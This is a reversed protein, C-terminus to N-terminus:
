YHHLQYQKLFVTQTVLGLIVQNFTKAVGNSGTVVFNTAGVLTSNNVSFSGTSITLSTTSNWATVSSLLQAGTSGSPRNDTITMTGNVVNNIFQPYQRDYGTGNSGTIVINAVTVINSRGQFGAGAGGAITANVVGTSPIFVNTSGSVIVSGSQSATGNKSFIILNGETGSAGTLSETVAFPYNTAGYASPIMRISGTIFQDGNLTLSGSIAASGTYPFTTDPAYSASIATQAFSASTSNLAYSASTSNLSYSASISNDAFSASTSNLAYSASTATSASDANVAHQAESASIAYSASLVTGELYSATVAYSASTSNVAYSASVVSGAYYSATQALSASVANISDTAFSSSTATNAYSASTATNAYSATTASNATNASAAFTAYSATGVLNGTINGTVGLTGTVQTNVQIKVTGDDIINSDYVHDDGQSRLIRNLTPYTIDALSGTNKPGALFGGGSYSSGSASQYVWHNTESDWVISATTNLSGSDYVQLGAYRAAPLQTNLIIYEQGVIIASGTVTQVYNFSATGNVTLNGGITANNNVQLNSATINLGSAITSAFSATAVLLSSTSVAQPVGNADGVWTYGSQINPLSNPPVTLVIGMGNSGERTVVGLPQVQASGTPQTATWGGGVGVWVLTGAPYGTTNVGEIHGLIIGRGTANPALTNDGAILTAPMRAPNGADAVYVNVNDGTSGSAFLPTGKVISSTDLNRINQYLTRVNAFSLNGAGDTSLFQEVTGDTTPYRLGSATLSTRVNFADASSATAANTAFSASVAYSASTANNAFSATGLLSGTISPANLSGTVSLGRTFGPISPTSAYSDVKLFSNSTFTGGSAADYFTIGVNPVLQINLRHFNTGLNDATTSLSFQADPSAGSAVVEFASSGSAFASFLTNPNNFNGVSFNSGSAFINGTTTISGTVGLSGTILASGTYPFTTDPAYSASIATNAFSASTSNLAYSASTAFSASAIVGQLFSATAAFSASLVSMSGTQSNTIYSSTAAQLSNVQTQISQTFTNTSATYANFSSTTVFSGTNITPANLAFSATLAYSASTSTNSYSASISTQAFSASDSNIAISATDAYSASGANTAYNATNANNANVANQAQTAYSASTATAAQAANIAFSATNALGATAAYSASVSSSVPEGIFVVSNAVNANYDRLIAPTIQGSNNNPFDINNQNLIDARSYQPM